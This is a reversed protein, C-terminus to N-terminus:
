LFNFPNWAEVDESLLAKIGLNYVAEVNIKPDVFNTLYTKIEPVKVNRGYDAVNEDDEIFGLNNVMPSQWISKPLGGDENILGRAYDFFFSEKQTGLAIRLLWVANFKKLFSSIHIDPSITNYIMEAFYDRAGAAKSFLVALLAVFAGSMGLIFLDYDRSMNYHPGIQSIYASQEQWMIFQEFCQTSYVVDKSTSLLGLHIPVFWQTGIYGHYGSDALMGGNIAMEKGLQRLFHEKMEPYSQSLSAYAPLLSRDDNNFALEELHKIVVNLNVSKWNIIIESIIIEWRITDSLRRHQSLIDIILKDEEELGFRYIRYNHSGFLNKLQMVKDSDQGGKLLLHFFFLPKEFKQNSEGYIKTPNAIMSNTTASEIEFIFLPYKQRADFLWAIDVASGTNFSVLYEREFHYDLAAGLRCIKDIVKLGHKLKHTAM